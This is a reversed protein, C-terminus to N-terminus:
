IYLCEAYLVTFVCKISQARISCNCVLPDYVCVPQQKNKLNAARYYKIIYIKQKKTPTHEPRVEKNEVFNNARVKHSHTNEGEHLVSSSTVAQIIPPPPTRPENECRPPETSKMMLVPYVQHPRRKIVSTKKKGILSLSNILRSLSSPSETPTGIISPKTNKNPRLFSAFTFTTSSSSSSSSSPPEKKIITTIIIASNSSCNTGEEMEEKQLCLIVLSLFGSLYLPFSFFAGLQVFQLSTYILIIPISGLRREDFFWSDDWFKPSKESPM